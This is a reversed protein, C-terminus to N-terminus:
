ECAEVIKAIANVNPIACMLYIAIKEYNNPIVPTAGWHISNRADRVTDSWGHIEDLNRSYVGSAEWVSQFEDKKKYSSLVTNMKKSLSQNENNMLKRISDKTAENTAAKSLAHGLNIWAGEVARGLMTLSALYLESRFCAICERLDSDIHESLVGTNMKSLYIDSNSLVFDNETVGSPKKRFSDYTKLLLGEIRMGGSHTTNGRTVSYPLTDRVRIFDSSAPIIIGSAILGWIAEVTANHWSIYNSYDDFSKPSDLSPIQQSSIVSSILRDTSHHFNEVVHSKAVVVMQETVEVKDRVQKAIEEQQM